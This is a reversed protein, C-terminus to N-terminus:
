TPPLPTCRCFRLWSGYRPQWGWGVESSPLGDTYELLLNESLSAGVELPGTLKLKGHGITLRNRGHMISCARRLRRLRSRRAVVGSASSPAGARIPTRACEPEWQRARHDTGSGGACRVPLDRRSPIASRAPDGRASRHDLVGTRTRRWSRAARARASIRAIQGSMFGEPCRAALVQCCGWAPM